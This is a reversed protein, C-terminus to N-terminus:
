PNAFDVPLQGMEVAVLERGVAARRVVRVEDSILLCHKDVGYPLGEVVLKHCPQLLLDVKTCYVIHHHVVILYVM